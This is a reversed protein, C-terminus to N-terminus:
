SLLLGFSLAVLAFLINVLIVDGLSGKIELDFLWITSLVIVVTQLTALLSYPLMYGFVIESRKVPTALLRDLTGSTRE